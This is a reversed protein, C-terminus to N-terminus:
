LKSIDILEQSIQEFSKAVLYLGGAAEIKQKMALQHPSMRDKGIKVEISVHRGRITAHIDATGRETTGPIWTPSGIKRTFGVVDSVYKTEDIRRGTTNIRTAFGGIVKILDIIAKTLGNATKDTYKPRPLYQKPVTPHKLAKIEIIAESLEKLTM